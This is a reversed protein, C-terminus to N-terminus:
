KRPPALRGGVGILAAVEYPDLSTRPTLSM